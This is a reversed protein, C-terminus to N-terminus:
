KMYRYATVREDIRPYVDNRFSAGFRTTKYIKSDLEQETTTKEDIEVNEDPLVSGREHVSVELGCSGLDSILMDINSQMHNKLQDLDDYDLAFNKMRASFEMVSRVIGSVDISSMRTMDSKLHNNTSTLDDVENELKRIRVILDRKCSQLASIAHKSEDLMSKMNNMRKQISENENRLRDIETDCIETGDITTQKMADNTTPKIDILPFNTRYGFFDTMILPIDGEIIRMQMGNKMLKKQILVTKMPDRVTQCQGRDNGDVKSEITYDTM